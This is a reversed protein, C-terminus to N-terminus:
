VPHKTAQWRQNNKEARERGLEVRLCGCSKSKGRRLVFGTLARQNGCDCRCLWLVEQRQRSGSDAIVTWRGFRQGAMSVTNQRKNMAQEAKTAWRCNEPSYPGDNDKRDISHRKSPRPGMDALFRQFTEWRACVRIGRGGYWQFAADTPCRCRARMSLWVKYEPTACKGHNTARARLMDVRLCGCSRSKGNVLAASPVVHEVGCDCRCLWCTQGQRREPSLSLVVWREFRKGTLDNM